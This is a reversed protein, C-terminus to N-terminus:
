KLRMKCTGYKQLINGFGMSGVQLKAEIRNEMM